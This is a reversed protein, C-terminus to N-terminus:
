LNFDKKIEKIAKNVTQQINKFNAEVEKRRGKVNTWHEVLELEEYATNMGLKDFKPKIKAALDKVSEYQKNDIGNEIKKIELPITEIFDCLIQKAFDQNIKEIAYVKALNYHIAM